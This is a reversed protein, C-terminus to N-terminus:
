DAQGSNQMNRVKPQPEVVRSVSTAPEEEEEEPCRGRRAVRTMYLQIAISSLCTSLNSRRPATCRSICDPVVPIWVAVTVRVM